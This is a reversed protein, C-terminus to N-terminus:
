SFPICSGDPLILNTIKLGAERARINMYHNIAALEQFCEKHFPIILSLMKRGNYEVEEYTVEEVHLRQAFDHKQAHEQIRRLLATGKERIEGQDLPACSFRFIVMEEIL